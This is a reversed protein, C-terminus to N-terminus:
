EISFSAVFRLIWEDSADCTSIQQRRRNSYLFVIDILDASMGAKFLSIKGTSFGIIRINKELCENFIFLWRRLIDMSTYTNVVGYGSLLFASSVTPYHPSPLPQIMHINLLPSRVTSSFWSKLEDFSDTQYHKAVPVGNALPTAFGIFSNTQQDYTIKRVVGSCDESGFGYKGDIRNFYEQLSDFQFEGENIKTDGTSILKNLTQLSPLAPSLNVRVFQYTMKGSLIYLSLAFQKVQKSFRYNNPSRSMNLVINDIFSNLFRQEKNNVKGDEEYFRLLSKLMPNDNALTIPLQEQARNCHVHGQEEKKANLLTTLLSLSTRIGSKLIYHGNETRFCVQDRLHNIELSNYKFIDFVDPSEMLTRTSDIFQIKLIECLMQGGIKRVCTFFDEGNLDFIDNPLVSADCKNDM